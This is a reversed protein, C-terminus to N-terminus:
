DELRPPEARTTLSLRSQKRSPADFSSNSKATAVVSEPPSPNFWIRTSFKRSQGTKLILEIGVMLKSHCGSNGWIPSIKESIKFTQRGSRTCKLQTCFNEPDTTSLQRLALM